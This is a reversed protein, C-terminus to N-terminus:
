SKFRFYSFGQSVLSKNGGFIDLLGTSKVYAFHNSLSAIV